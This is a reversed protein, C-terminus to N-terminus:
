PFALACICRRDAARKAFPAKTEEVFWKATAHKPNTVNQEAQDLVEAPFNILMQLWDSTGRDRKCAAAAKKSIVHKKTLTQLYDTFGEALAPQLVPQKLRDLCGQQLTWLSALLNGNDM